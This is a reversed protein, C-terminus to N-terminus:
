QREEEGRERGEERERGEGRGEERGSGPRRWWQRLCVLGRVQDVYCARGRGLPICLAVSAGNNDFYSQGGLPISGIAVGTHTHTHTHKHAYVIM